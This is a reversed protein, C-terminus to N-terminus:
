KPVNSTNASLECPVLYYHLLPGLDLPHRKRKGKRMKTLSAVNIDICLKCEESISMNDPFIPQNIKTCNLHQSVVRLASFVLPTIPRIPTEEKKVKEIKDIIVHPQWGAGEVGQFIAWNKSVLGKEHARSTALTRLGSPLMSSKPKHLLDLFLESM